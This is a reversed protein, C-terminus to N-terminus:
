HTAFDNCVSFWSLRARASRRYARAYSAADVRWAGLSSVPQIPNTSLIEALAGNSGRGAVLSITSCLGATEHCARAWVLVAGARPLQVSAARIRVGSLYCPPHPGIPAEGLM